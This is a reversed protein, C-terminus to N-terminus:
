KARGFGPALVSSAALVSRKVFIPARRRTTAVYLDILSSAISQALIM